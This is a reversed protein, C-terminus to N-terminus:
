AGKSRSTAIDLVWRSFFTDYKGATGVSAWNKLKWGGHNWPEKLALLTPSVPVSKVDFTGFAFM